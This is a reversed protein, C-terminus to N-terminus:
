EMHGDVSSSLDPIAVRMHSKYSSGKVVYCGSFRVPGCCCVIIEQEYLQQQLRLGALVSELGCTPDLDTGCMEWEGQVFM